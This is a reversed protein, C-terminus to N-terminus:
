AGTEVYETPIFFQDWGLAKKALYLPVLLPNDRSTSGILDDFEASTKAVRAKSWAHHKRLSEIPFAMPFSSQPSTMTELRRSHPRKTIKPNTWVVVALEDESYSGSATKYVKSM